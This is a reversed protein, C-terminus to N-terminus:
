FMHLLVVVTYASRYADLLPLAEEKDKLLESNIAQLCAVEDELKQLPMYTKKLLFTQLLHKCTCVYIYQHHMVPQLKVDMRGHQTQELAPMSASSM